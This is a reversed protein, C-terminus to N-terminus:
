NIAVTHHDNENKKIMKNLAIIYGIADPDAYAIGIKGDKKIFMATPPHDVSVNEAKPILSNLLSKRLTDDQVYQTEEWRKDKAFEASKQTYDQQWIDVAKIAASNEPSLWQDRSPNKDVM